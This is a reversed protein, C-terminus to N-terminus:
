SKNFEAPDPGMRYNKDLSAMETMDTKSLKFDFVDLNSEIREPTVSKPIVVNGLQIHWRIIVQAPTKNHRAAIAKIVPDELADGRGLPSWAQTLIGLKSHLKRLESQQFYPHLEIQNIVPAVGTEDVLKQIHDANFNSVGISRVKGEKQAEIMAQWTEVYLSKAPMPWHILLLDVYELQLRELSENLAQKTSDFGQAGNWIKTTVFIDKRPVGSDIIGKGVGEENEYIAATDIQHYGSQLAHCVALRAQDPSAKWVGLGVQPITNGDSFTLSTQEIEM